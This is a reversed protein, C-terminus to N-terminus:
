LLPYQQQKYSELPLLKKEARGVLFMLPGLGMFTLDETLMAERCLQSSIDLFHM